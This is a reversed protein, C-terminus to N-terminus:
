KAPVPEAASLECALAQLYEVAKPYSWAHVLNEEKTTDDATLIKRIPTDSWEISLVRKRWGLRVVGVPTTVLFWPSLKRVEVYADPWYANEVQFVSRAQIGALLCLARVHAETFERSM